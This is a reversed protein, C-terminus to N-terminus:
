PTRGREREMWDIIVRVIDDWRQENLVEHYLDPYVEIQRDDSSIRRFVVQTADPDVLKDAGAVLCLFPQDLTHARALTDQMADQAEQFWRATTTSFILPDDAYAKVVRPLQSVAAPDLGSPISFSPWIRNMVRGAIEKVVPVDISLGCMPSSLIYGAVDEPHRLAYRLVIQGGNSHGMCFLPLGPWRERAQLCLMEYDVTYDEYRDVHGRKGTSRGHGRADIAMVVYGARCLAVAVHGYRASHEGYGHMLAVVGRTPGGEAQWSQWYLREADFAHWFGDQTHVEAAEAFRAPALDSLDLADIAERTLYSEHKESEHAM